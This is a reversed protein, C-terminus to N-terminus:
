LVKMWIESANSCLLWGLLGGVATLPIRFRNDQKEGEPNLGLLLVAVTVLAFM